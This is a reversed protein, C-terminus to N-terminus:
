AYAQMAPRINIAEQEAAVPILVTTPALVAGDQEFGLAISSAPPAIHQELYAVTRKERSLPPLITLSKSM